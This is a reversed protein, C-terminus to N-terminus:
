ADAHKLPGIRFTLMAFDPGPRLDDGGDVKVWWRCTRGGVAAGEAAAEATAGTAGVRLAATSTAWCTRRGQKCQRGALPEPKCASGARCPETGQVSAIYHLAWRTCLLVIGIM